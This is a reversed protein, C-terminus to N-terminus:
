SSFPMRTGNEKEKPRLFHGNEKEKPRLFHGNEKEKPRFPCTSLTPEMKRPVVIPKYSEKQMHLAHTGNEKKKVFPPMHTRPHPGQSSLPNIVKKRCTSSTPEMIMRRSSLPCTPELPM